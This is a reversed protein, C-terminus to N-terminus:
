IVYGHYSFNTVCKNKRQVKSLAKLSILETLAWLWGLFVGNKAANFSSQSMSLSVLKGLNYLLYPTSSLSLSM